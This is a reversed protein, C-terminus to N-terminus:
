FAYVIFIETAPDFLNEIWFFIDLFFSVVIEVFGYALDVFFGLVSTAIAISVILMFSAFVAVMIFLSEFM